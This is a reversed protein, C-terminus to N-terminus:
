SAMAWQPSNCWFFFSFISYICVCVILSCDILGVLSKQSGFRFRSGSPATRLNWWNTIYGTDNSNSWHQLSATYKWPEITFMLIPSTNEREWRATNCEMSWTRQYSSTGILSDKKTKADKEKIWVQWITWFVAQLKLLVRWNSVESSWLSYSHLNSTRNESATSNNEVAVLLEAGLPAFIVAYITKWRSLFNGAMKHFNSLWKPTQVLEGSIGIRLRVNGARMRMDRRWLM